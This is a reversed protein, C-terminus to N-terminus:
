EPLADTIQVKANYLNELMCPVGEPLFTQRNEVLTGAM